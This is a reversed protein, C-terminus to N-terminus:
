VDKEIKVIIIDEYGAGGAREVHVGKANRFYYCVLLANYESDTYVCTNTANFTLGVEFKHTKGLYGVPFVPNYNDVLGGNYMDKLKSM